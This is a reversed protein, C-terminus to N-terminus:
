RRWCSRESSINSVHDDTHLRSVAAAMEGVLADRTIARSRRRPDRQRDAENIREFGVLAHTTEAGGDGSESLADLCGFTIPGPLNVRRTMVSPRRM